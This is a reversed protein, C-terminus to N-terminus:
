RPTTSSGSQQQQNERVSIRLQVDERTAQAESSQDRRANEPIPCSLTYSGSTLNQPLQVSFETMTMMSSEASAARTEEADTEETLRPDEAERRQTRTEADTAADADQELRADTDQGQELRADRDQQDDQDRTQFDSDQGTQIETQETEGFESESEFGECAALALVPVLLLSSALVAPNKTYM